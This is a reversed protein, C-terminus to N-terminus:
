EPSIRASHLLRFSPPKLTMYCLSFSLIRQFGVSIRKSTFLIYFCKKLTSQKLKQTAHFLILSPPLTVVVVRSMGRLRKLRIVSFASFRRFYYKSKMFIKSCAYADSQLALDEFINFGKPTFWSPHNLFTQTILIYAFSEERRWTWIFSKFISQFTKIFNDFNSIM